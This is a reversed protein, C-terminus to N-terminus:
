RASPRRAAGRCARSAVPSPPASSSGSAPSSSSWRWCRSSSAWRSARGPDQREARHRHLLAAPAAPGGRERDARPHRPHVGRGRGPPLRRRAHLRRLDLPHRHPLHGVLGRAAPRARRRPRRPDPGHPRTGSTSSPWCRSSRSRCSSASSSPSGWSGASTPRRTAAAAARPRSSSPPSWPWCRGPWSTTSPPAPWARRRRRAHGAHAARQPHPGAGPVGDGVDLRRHVPRLAPLRHRRAPLRRPDPCALGFGLTFPLVVSTISVGAALREKGRILKM